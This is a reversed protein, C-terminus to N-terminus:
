QQMEELAYPNVRITGDGELLPEGSIDYASENLTDIAGAPMLGFQACLEAFEAQSWESQTSVRNFLSSHAHDLGPTEGAVPKNSMLTEPTTEPVDSEAFIGALLTSIEASQAIKRQIAATDLELKAPGTPSAPRQPIRFGTDPATGPRVVVPAQAPAPASQTLEAHLQSTVLDPNLELLRFIRTLTTVEAPTIIGDISAISVLARGIDQRQKPNLAELRKKLGTLKIEGSALWAAHAHLRTREAPSLDLASELHNQMAAFEVHSHDGDAGATAVALHILTAAASYSSSPTQPARHDARFLGVSLEDNLAPGGFRPDPEIGIDLAGLLQALSTSELKSLKGPTATPWHRILDAASVTVSDRNGLTATLWAHFASVPRSAGPILERPLLAIAPLSGRDLSNKGVWRSYPDLESTVQQFLEVLRGGPVAQQFIDPTDAFSITTEQLGASAPHYSTKLRTKGPKTPLGAPYLESFRLDFLQTLDAQCRRAPARLSNEPHYWAWHFALEAPISRGSAAHQGLAARLLFPTFM